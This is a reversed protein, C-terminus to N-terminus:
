RPLLIHYYVGQNYLRSYNRKSKSSAFDRKFGLQILTFLMYITCIYTYQAMNPIRADRASIRVWIMTLPGFAEKNRGPRAPGHCAGRLSIISVVADDFSVCTQTFMAWSRCLFLVLVAVFYNEIVFKACSTQRLSQLPFLFCDIPM